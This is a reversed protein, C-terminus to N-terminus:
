RQRAIATGHSQTTPLGNTKKKFDQWDLVHQSMAAGPEGGPATSSSAAPSAGAAAELKRTAPAAQKYHLYAMLEAKREAEATVAAAM